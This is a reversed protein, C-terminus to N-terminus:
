ADDIASAIMAASSSTVPGVIRNSPSRISHDRLKKKFATWDAL